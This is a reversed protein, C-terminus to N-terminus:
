SHINPIGRGRALGLAGLIAWQQQSLVWTPGVAYPSSARRKVGKLRITAVPTSPGVSYDSAKFYYGQGNTSRPRYGVFSFTGSYDSLISYGSNTMVQQNDIIARQYRLLGGFDAFWNGLWTWPTLDYVTSEDFKWTRLLSEAALRYGPLREDLGLPRPVFYEWTAFSRIIQRQYYSWNYIPELVNGYSGTAGYYGPYIVRTQHYGTTYTDGTLSQDYAVAGFSGSDSKESILRENFRREQVEELGTLGSIVPQSQLSIAAARGLDEATPKLGFLFNLVAGGLQRPNRPIYNEMRFLLHADKQEGAFRALNFQEVLPRSTRLLQGAINRAVDDSPPAPLAGPLFSCGLFGKTAVINRNSYPYPRIDARTKFGTPTYTVETYDRDHTPWFRMDHKKFAVEGSTEDLLNIHSLETAYNSPGSQIVDIEEQTLSTNRYGYQSRHRGYPASVSGKSSGREVAFIRDPDRASESVYAM